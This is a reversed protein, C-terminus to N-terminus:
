AFVFGWVFPEMISSFSELANRVTDFRLLAFYVLICSTIVFFATIGWKVNEKDLRIKM